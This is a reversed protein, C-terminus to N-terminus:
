CLVREVVPLTDRIRHTTKFFLGKDGMARNFGEAFQHGPANEYVTRYVKADEADAILEPADYRPVNTYNLIEEKKDAYRIQKLYHLKYYEEVTKLYESSLVESNKECQYSRCKINELIKEVPLDLYIILHPRILEDITCKRIDYYISRATKSIYGQKFMAELFVFDSYVCRDLIVGQGTSLLHALADIYQTLKVIYQRIQFIASLNHRPNCLFDPIDFSRLKAPLECDLTKFNFGYSNTYLMDQNAEPLYLMDLDEALCKALETKGTAVSGEVVIIKSNEDIRKSTKDYLYHFLNYRKTKYPWPNPKWIPPLANKLAKGYIGRVPLILDNRNSLLKNTNQSCLVRVVGIRFVAAM